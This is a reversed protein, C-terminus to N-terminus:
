YEYRARLDLNYVTGTEDQSTVAIGRRRTVQGQLFLLRSLRYEAALDQYDVRQPAANGSVDGVIQSYRVLLDRTLYRSMGVKTYAKASTEGSGPVVLNTQGPELQAEGTTAVEFGGLVSAVGPDRLLQNLLYAGAAQGIAGTGGTFQGYTLVTAIETPSMATPDSSLAVTPTLARGSVALTITERTGSPGSQSQQGTGQVLKVTTLTADVTPNLPNAADFFLTASKVDFQNGLFYYRGRLADVQGLLLFRDLSQVVEFDTLKGEINADPPRWWV